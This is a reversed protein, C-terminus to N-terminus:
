MVYRSTLSAPLLVFAKLIIYVVFSKAAEKMKEIDLQQYVHTVQKHLLAPRYPANYIVYRYRRACAKFRAHFDEGMPQLWQLAIDKPLQSNSGMM